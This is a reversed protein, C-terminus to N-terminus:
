RVWGAKGKGIGNKKKWKWFTLPSVGLMEALEKDKLTPDLRKIIVFAEVSLHNLQPKRTKDVKAIEEGWRKRYETLTRTTIGLKEAIDKNTMGQERLEVYADRLMDDIHQIKVM